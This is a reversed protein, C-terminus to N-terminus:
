PETSKTETTKLKTKNGFSDANFGNGAIHWGTFAAALLAIILPAIWWYSKEPATNSLMDHMEASTKEDEGVRVTHEAKQRIVKEATVPKETIIKGSPLFRIEGGLGKNLCGIGSWEISDGNNVQKRLEFLFDNFRIVADRDSVSLSNGLWKFFKASPQGAKQQM